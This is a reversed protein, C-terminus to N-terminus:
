ECVTETKGDTIELRVLKDASVACDPLSGLQAAGLAACALISLTVAKM